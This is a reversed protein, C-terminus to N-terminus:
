LQPCPDTDRCVKFEVIHITAEAKTKKGLVLMIDPQLKTKPMPHTNEDAPLLTEERRPQRPLFKPPVRHPLLSPAGAEECKATRGLDAMVIDGGMHGKSIARLLIRGISHHREVYM